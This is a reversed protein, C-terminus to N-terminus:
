KVGRQKKITLLLKYAPLTKLDEKTYAEKHYGIVKLLKDDSFKIAEIALTFGRQTGEDFIMQDIEQKTAKM